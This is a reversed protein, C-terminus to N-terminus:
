KKVRSLRGIVFGNLTYSNLNEPKVFKEIFCNNIWIKGLNMNSLKLHSEESLIHNRKLGGLKYGNSLWYELEDQKVLKFLTM